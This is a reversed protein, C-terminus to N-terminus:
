ELYADHPKVRKDVPPIIMYNNGYIHTLYLDFCEPGYFETDEFKYLKPIGYIERDIIQRNYGYQSVTSCVCKTNQSEFRKMVSVRKNQLVSFPIVSMSLSILRKAAIKWGMFGKNYIRGLKLEFIRDIRMLDLKQKNRQQISDPVNDLPFIDIYTNKCIKLHREAPVDVYTGKICVRSLAPQFQKESAYNQLFYKDSECKLPFLSIFQEYDARMMAIDIDDDWPIFGNHRIAGLLTGGIIYYSINHLVCFRHIDKMAALQILQLERTTIRKM